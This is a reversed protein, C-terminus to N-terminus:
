RKKVFVSLVAFLLVLLVAAVGWWGFVAYVVLSPLGALLLSPLNLFPCRM